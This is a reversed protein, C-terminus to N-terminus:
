SVAQCSSLRCRASLCCTFPCQPHISHRGVAGRRLWSDFAPELALLPCGGATTKDRTATGPDIYAPPHDSIRSSRRWIRSFRREVSFPHLLFVSPPHQPRCSTEGFVFAYASHRRLRHSM